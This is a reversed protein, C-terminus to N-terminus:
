DNKRREPEYKEEAEPDPLQLSRGRPGQEERKRPYETQRERRNEHDIRRGRDSPNEENGSSGEAGQAKVAVGRLTAQVGHTREQGHTQEPDDDRAKDIQEERTRGKLPSDRDNADDHKGPEGGPVRLLDLFHVAHGIIPRHGAALSDHARQAEIKVEDVQERAQNLQHTVAASLSAHITTLRSM